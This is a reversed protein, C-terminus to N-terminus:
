PRGIDFVGNTVTVTGTPEVGVNRLTAPFV